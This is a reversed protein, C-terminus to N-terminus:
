WRWGVGVRLCAVALRQRGALRDCDGRQRQGVLRLLAYQLEQASASRYMALLAAPVVGGSGGQDTITARGRRQAPRLSLCTQRIRFPSSSMGRLTSSFGNSRMTMPSLTMM